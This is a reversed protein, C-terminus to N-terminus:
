FREVQLDTLRFRGSVGEMALSLTGDADKRAFDISYRVPGHHGELTQIRPSLPKGSVAERMHFAMTRPGPQDIEASFKVRYRGKGECAVPMWLRAGGSCVVWGESPKVSHTLENDSFFSLTKMPEAVGLVKTGDHPAPATFVAELPKGRGGFCNCPTVRVTYAADKEFYGANLAFTVFPRRESEPLYFQGFVDGRSSQGPVASFIEVQYRYCGNPAVARPIRVTFTTFPTSMKLELRAGDAFQPIPERVMQRERRYPAAKLDLPLPITWPHDAAYELGTRVDFRRFVLRDPYVELILAGFSQKGQASAGVVHGTWSQLCGANVSTFEGQWINQESRLSSHAHGNVYVVQPYDSLIQRLGSSGWTVADDACGLPPEHGFLLVPRGPHTAVATDLLTRLRDREFYQPFMVLPWGNVDCSEYLDNPAKLLARVDAMVTTFPEKTRDLWDHYAYVWFERPRRAAFARDFMERLFRYGEPYHRDAIDGCHVFLDVEHAAFLRFAMEIRTCSERTKGVHTDTVIGAKWLPRNAAAGVATFAGSTLLFARRTTM